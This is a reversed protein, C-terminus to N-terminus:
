YTLDATTLAGSGDVSEDAPTARAFHPENLRRKAVAAAQRKVAGDRCSKFAGVAPVHVQVEGRGAGGHEGAFGQKIHNVPVFILLRQPEFRKQGAKEDPLSSRHQRLAIPVGNHRDGKIGGSLTFTSEVLGFPESM